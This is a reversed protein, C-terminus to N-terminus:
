SVPSVILSWIDHIINRGFAPNGHLRRPNMEVGGGRFLYSYGTRTTRFVDKEFMVRGEHERFKRSRENNQYNITM